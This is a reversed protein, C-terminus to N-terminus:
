QHILFLGSISNTRCERFVYINTEYIVFFTHRNKGEVSCTIFKCIDVNCKNHAIKIGGERDTHMDTDRERKTKKEKKEREGERRNREIWAVWRDMDKDNMDILWDIM